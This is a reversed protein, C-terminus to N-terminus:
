RICKSWEQNKLGYQYSWLIITDQFSYGLNLKMVRYQLLGIEFGHYLPLNKSWHSQVPVHIHGWDGIKHNLESKQNLTVETDKSSKSWTRSRVNIGTGIFKSCSGDIKCFWMGNIPFSHSVRSESKPGVTSDFGVRSDLNSKFWSRLWYQNKYRENKLGFWGNWSIVNKQQVLTCSM